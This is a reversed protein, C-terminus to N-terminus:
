AKSLADRAVVLAGACVIVMAVVAAWGGALWM